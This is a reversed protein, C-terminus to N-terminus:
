GAARMEWFEEWRGSLQICRLATIANAGRLSWHMGSQKLRQGVVTRCGAEVVGSGVFWGQQRYEGYRMRERNHAFYNITRRLEEQAKKSSPQLRRLCRLLAEVKGEDLQALRAEGWRTAKRNQVPYIVQSLEALHQRAHYLDVIQVAGPFHEDAIAWIWQAGDGIVIVQAARRLGRREAEGYLRWGFASASEIAGVYTTSAEDRQPRGEKDMGTQTFICGLKVERTHAEGGAGKGRRGATECKVM